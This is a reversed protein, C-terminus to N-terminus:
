RRFIRFNRQLKKSADRKEIYRHSIVVIAFLAVLSVVMGDTM